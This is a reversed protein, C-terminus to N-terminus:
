NDKLYSYIVTTVDAVPSQGTTFDFYTIVAKNVRRKDEDFDYQITYMHELEDNGNQFNITLPNNKALLKSTFYAEREKPSLVQDAAEVIGGSMLYPKYINPQLDYNIDVYVHKTINEKDTLDMKIWDPNNGTGNYGIRDIVFKKYEGQYPNIILDSYFIKDAVEKFNTLKDDDYLLTIPGADSDSDTFKILTNDEDYTFSYKQSDSDEGDKIIEVSEFLRDRSAKEFDQLVEDLDDNCSVSMMFVSLIVTLVRFKFIM